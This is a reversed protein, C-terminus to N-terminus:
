GERATVTAGPLSEKRADPTGVVVTLYGGSLQAAAHGDLTVKTEETKVKVMMRTPTCFYLVRGEAMGVAAPEAPGAFGEEATTTTGPQDLPQFTSWGPDVDGQESVGCVGKTHIWAALDHKGVRIRALAREADEPLAQRTGTAPSLQALPWKAPDRLVPAEGAQASCAATLAVVALAM